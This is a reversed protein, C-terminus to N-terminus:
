IINIGSRDPRPKIPQMNSWDNTQFLVDDIRVERISIDRM